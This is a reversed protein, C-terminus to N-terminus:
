DAQTKLICFHVKIQFNILSGYCARFCDKMTYFWISNQVSGMIANGQGGGHTFQLKFQYFQKRFPM